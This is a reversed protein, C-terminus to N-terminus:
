RTSQIALPIAAAGLRRQQKRVLEGLEQAAKPRGTLAKIMAKQGVKTGGLALLAAAAASKKLSDTDGTTYGYLSGGGLVGGGIVAQAIRRGTGSDPVKNPLVAQAPDAMDAFQRKGGFKVASAYDATNLQAPTFIQNEGSGTGNKAAAQAKQLLKLRRYALDANNLGQVVKEGGGRKMQATLGAMAQTVADRYEQEFGPAAQAAAARSGKLGRMSQQYAEGTMEGADVIPSVRNEGVKDLKLAHDPPLKQGAAAVKAMDAHFQPDLPVRVGATANDYADSVQSLLDNTGQEGLNSTVAQVPEGARKLAAENLARLGELRRANIMDGIIPLSTAGDELAKPIGGFTQGVTMPIDLKRLYAAMPSAKAGGILAGGVKSVGQGALSGVGGAVAGTLPDGQTVGGYIGSYGMDTALNRVVRAMPTDALLRPALSPLARTAGYEALSGLGKTGAVAGAMEGATLAYPHKDRLASYRDGTLYEAGGGSFMNAWGAAAAGVPNNVLNNRGQDILSMPHEVGPIRANVTGGKKGVQQIREGEIRYRELQAQDTPYGYRRDLDTRFAAYSDPTLDGIHGALFASMEEQMAKPVPTLSSTAGAEAAKPADMTLFPQQWPTKNQAPVVNGNADPIGGLTQIAQRIANDRVGQLNTFIDANTGDFNWSDPIYGGLNMNAEAATNAEGGTLGLANRVIGRAQSGAKDFRQNAESPFYDFVGAVGHTSGPGQSFKTRMDNIIRDLQQAANWQALAKAYTEAPLGNLRTQAGATTADAEAKKVVAPATAGKVQNEIVQGTTGAATRAIDGQAQQVKIPNSAVSQGGAAQRLRIANGQADTEWINGAEDQAIPM